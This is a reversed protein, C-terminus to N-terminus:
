EYCLFMASMLVMSYIIMCHVDHFNIWADHTNGWADHFNIWVDHFNIWANNGM